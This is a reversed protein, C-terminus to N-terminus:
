NIIEIEINDLVVDSNFIIKNWKEEDGLFIIKKLKSCNDFAEKEIYNISDPLIITELNTCWSFAYSPLTRVQGPIEIETLATCKSFVGNGISSLRDPLNISKLKYCGIFAYGGIYRLSNPFEITELSSCYEFVNISITELNSPLIVTKLNQCSEFLFPELVTLNDSLKIYELSSCDSFAREMITQVSNPIKIEKLAKNLSFAKHGITKLSNPLNITAFQAAEFASTEIRELHSDSSFSINNLSSCSYFSRDDLYYVNNPINIDSLSICYAFTDEAIYGLPCNNDFKVEKLKKCDIFAASDMQNLQSNEEFTVKELVKSGLFAEHEIVKVSNPIVLEKINNYRFAGTSITEINNPIKLSDVEKAAPWLFLVKKNKSYLAGNISTYQENAYDVKIEKLNPFHHLYFFNNFNSFNQGIVIKGIHETGMVHVGFDMYVVKRGKYRDPIRITAFEKTENFYKTDIKIASVVYHPGQEKYEILVGEYKCGCLIFSLAIVIFLIFINRKM